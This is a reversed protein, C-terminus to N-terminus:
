IGPEPAGPQTNAAPGAAPAAPGLERVGEPTALCLMRVPTAHMVAGRQFARLFHRDPQTLKATGPRSVTIVTSGGPLNQAVVESAVYCINAIASPDPRGPVGDIPVVLNAQNGQADLFFLWVTLAPDHAAEPGILAAVRGLVDQDTLVPTALLRQAEAAPISRNEEERGADDPM